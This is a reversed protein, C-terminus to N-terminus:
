RSRCGSGTRATPIEEFAEEDGDLVGGTATISSCMVLMHAAAPLGRLDNVANYQAKNCDVRM